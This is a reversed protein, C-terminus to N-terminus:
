PCWRVYESNLWKRVSNSYRTTKASWCWSSRMRRRLPDLFYRGRRDGALRKTKEFMSRSRPCRARWLLRRWHSWNSQQLLCSSQRPCHILAQCLLEKHEIVWTLRLCRPRINWDMGSGQEHSLRCHRCWKKGKHVLRQRPPRCWNDTRSGWSTSDWSCPLNQQPIHNTMDTRTPFKTGQMREWWQSRSKWTRPPDFMRCAGLM